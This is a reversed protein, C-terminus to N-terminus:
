SSIIHCRSFFLALVTFTVLCQTVLNTFHAIGPVCQVLYTNFLTLFLLAHLILQQIALAVNMM